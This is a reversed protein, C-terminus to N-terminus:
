RPRMSRRFSFVPVLPNDLQDVRLAGLAVAANGQWLQRNLQARVTSLEESHHLLHKCSDRLFEQTMNGTRGFTEIAIPIFKDDPQEAAMAEKYHAIKWNEAIKAAYGNEEPSRRLHKGQLPSVVTIDLAYRQRTRPHTAVLTSFCLCPLACM